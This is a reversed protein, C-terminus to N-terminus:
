DGGTEPPRAMVAALRVCTGRWMLDHYVPEIGLCRALAIFGTRDGRRAYDLFVEVHDSPLMAEPVAGVNLVTWYDVVRGAM